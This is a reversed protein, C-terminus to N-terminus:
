GKAEGKLRNKPSRSFVNLPFRERMVKRVEAIAPTQSPDVGLALALYFSLYDSKLMATLIQSLYVGGFGTIELIECRTMRIFERLALTMFEDELSSKIVVLIDKEGRKQMIYNHLADPLSGYYAGIKSNENLQQLLRVGVAHMKPTTLIHIRKDKLKEAYRKMYNEEIPVHVGIERVLKRTNDYSQKIEKKVDKLGLIKEMAAILAGILTFTTTRSFPTSKTRIHKVNNKLALKELTGGCSVCIVEAKRKLADKFAKITEVTEGSKSVIIALTKTSVFNPLIHKKIVYIPISTKERLWECVVFAATASSGMGAFILNDFLKQGNPSFKSLVDMYSSILQEPSSEIHVYMKLRDKKIIEEFSLKNL